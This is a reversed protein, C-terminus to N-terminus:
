RAAWPRFEGRSNVGIRARSAFVDGIVEPVLAPAAGKADLELRVDTAKMSGLWKRATALMATVLVVTIPLDWFHM